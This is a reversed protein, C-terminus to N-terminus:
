QVPQWDPSQDDGPSNTLQRPEGSGDANMIYLDHDGDRDSSFVIKGGGPSYAPESDYAAAENTTLPKEETGDANAAYIQSESGDPTRHFAM